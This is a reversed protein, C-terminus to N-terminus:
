AWEWLVQRTHLRACPVATDFAGLELHSQLPWDTPAPMTRGERGTPQFALDTGCHRAPSGAAAPRTITGTRGNM